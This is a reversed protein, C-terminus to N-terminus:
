IGTEHDLNKWAPTGDDIQDARNREKKIKVHDVLYVMSQPHSTYAVARTTFIYRAYKGPPTRLLVLYWTHYIARACSRMAALICIYLLNNTHDVTEPAFLDHDTRHTRHGTQEKEVACRFSPM